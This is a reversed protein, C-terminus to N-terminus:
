PEPTEYDIIELWFLKSAIVASLSTINQLICIPRHAHCSATFREGKEEAQVKCKEKVKEDGV